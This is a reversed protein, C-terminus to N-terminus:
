EKLNTDFCWDIFSIILFCFLSGIAFVLVVGLSIGLILALGQVGDIYGGWFNKNPCLLGAAVPLINFLVIVGFIKKFINKM